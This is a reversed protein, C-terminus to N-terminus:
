NQPSLNELEAMLRRAAGARDGQLAIVKQFSTKAQDSNQLMLYAKGLFWYANEQIRLNNTSQIAAQFYEIARYVLDDDIAHFRGIFDSKAIALSAVGTIYGAHSRNPSGPNVTIFKELKEIAFNYQGQDFAFLGDSFDQEVDGRLYAGAIETKPDISAVKYYQFESGRFLPSVWVLILVLAFAAATAPYLQLKPLAFIRDALSAIMERVGSSKKRASTKAMAINIKTEPVGAQELYADIERFEQTVQEVKQRCDLCTQVHTEIGAIEQQTLQRGDYDPEDPDSLYIGYCTLLKDDIHSTAVNQKLGAMIAQLETFHKRCDTCDDTHRRITQQEGPSLEDYFIIKEQIDKCLNM